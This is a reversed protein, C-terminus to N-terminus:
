VSVPEVNCQALTMIVAASTNDISKNLVPAQTPKINDSEKNM